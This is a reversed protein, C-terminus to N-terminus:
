INKLAQLLCINNSILLLNAELSVLTETRSCLSTPLALSKDAGPIHTHADNECEIGSSVYETPYSREAAHDHLDSM